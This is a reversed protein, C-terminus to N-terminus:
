LEFISRDKDSGSGNLCLGELGITGDAWIESSKSLIFDEVTKLELFSIQIINRPWSCHATFPFIYACYFTKYMGTKSLKVLICLTM